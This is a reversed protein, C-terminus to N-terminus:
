IFHCAFTMDLVTDVKNRTNPWPSMRCQKSESDSCLTFIGFQWLNNVGQISCIGFLGNRWVARNTHTNTHLGMILAEALTKKKNQKKKLSHTFTCLPNTSPSSCILIHSSAPNQKRKVTQILVFLFLRLTGHQYGKNLPCTEPSLRWCFLAPRSNFGKM